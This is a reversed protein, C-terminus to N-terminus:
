GAPTAGASGPGVLWRIMLLVLGAAAIAAFLFRLSAPMAPVRRKPTVPTSIMRLQPAVDALSGRQRLRDQVVAIVMGADFPRIGLQQATRMVRARREPTLIGDEMQSATRVALVWRPDTPDLDMRGAAARTEREVAFRARDPDDGTALRVAPRGGGGTVTETPRVRPLETPTRAGDVPAALPPRRRSRDGEAPEQGVLRLPPSDDPRKPM